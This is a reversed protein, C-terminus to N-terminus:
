LGHFSGQDLRITSHVVNSLWLAFTIHQIVVITMITRVQM